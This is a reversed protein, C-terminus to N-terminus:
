EDCLKSMLKTVNLTDNLTYLTQKPDNGGLSRSISDIIFEYGEVRYVDKIRKVSQSNFLKLKSTDSRNFPSTFEYEGNDFFVKLSSAGTFRSSVNLLIQVSGASLFASVDTLTGSTSHLCISEKISLSNGFLSQLIGLPYVGYDDFVDKNTNIDKYFDIRLSRTEGLEKSDIINKLRKVKPLYVSWVSEFIKVGKKQAFAILEEVEEPRSVLPKECLVNVGVSVCEKIISFHTELPTAIYVIDLSEEEVMKKISTYSGLNGGRLRSFERATRDNRSCIARLRNGKVSQIALSFRKSMDGTGVIGWNIERSQKSELIGLRSKLSLIRYKLKTTLSM